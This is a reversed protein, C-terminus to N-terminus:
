IKEFKSPQPFLSEMFQKVKTKEELTTDASSNICFFKPKYKNIRKHLKSSNDTDCLSEWEVKKLFHLHLRWPKPNTVIKLEANGSYVMDLSFLIRQIDDPKRFRNQFCKSLRNQFKDLTVLFLTKRYADINHHLEYSEKKGYTNELLELSNLVTGYYTYKTGRYAMLKKRRIAKVRVIPKDGAFFDEQYVKKGFFMDDNGYLFKESLKPIFPLFYEIVASNFCPISEQPMIESHDIVTVKEYKTNLWKPVQRDTVIYVHNIWPAYMELSRLSYKLEKNDFFRIDGVAENNEQESNDEIKLYQQKRKKFASDNGDCWLYVMDIKNDQKIMNIM